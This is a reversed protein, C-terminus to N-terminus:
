LVTDAFHYLDAKSNSNGSGISTSPLGSFGQDMASASGLFGSGPFTRFSTFNHGMSHDNLTGDEHWGYLRDDHRTLHVPGSVNTNWSLPGSHHVNGNGTPISGVAGGSAGGVSGPINIHLTEAGPTSSLSTTVPSVGLHGNLQGSSGGDNLTKRDHGFSGQEQSPMLKSPMQPLVTDSTRPRKVEKPKLITSSDFGEVKRKVKEAIAKQLDSIDKEMEAIKVNSWGVLKVPDIKYDELSKRVAKLAALHKQYVERLAGPSGRLDKREREWTEQSEQLYPTLITEAPFMEDVGFSYAADVAVMCMGKKVLGRIIDAVFSLSTLCLRFAMDFALTDISVCIFPYAKLLTKVKDPIREMLFPSRRLACSVEKAYGLHFSEILDENGFGSPIGFSALFLLLGQAETNSSNSVGGEQIFLAPLRNSNILSHETFAKSGQLYFRGICKLAKRAEERLKKIDSMHTRIYKRFGRSGMTQCLSDITPSSTEKCTKDEASGGNALDASLLVRQPLFRLSRIM